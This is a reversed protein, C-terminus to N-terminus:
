KLRDQAPDPAAAHQQGSPGPEPGGGQLIVRPDVGFFMAILAIVVVGLGGGAMGGVGIGRRDEINESRRGKEWLMATRRTSRDRRPMQRRLRSPNHATASACCPKRYRAWRM